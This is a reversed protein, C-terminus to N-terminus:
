YVAATPMSATESIPANTVSHQWSKRLDMRSKYHAETYSSIQGERMGNNARRRRENQIRDNERKLIGVAQKGAGLIRQYLDDQVNGGREAKVAEVLTLVAQKARRAGTPWRM